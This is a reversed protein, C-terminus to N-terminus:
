TDNRGSRRVSARPIASTGTSLERGPRNSSSMVSIESIVTSYPGPVCVQDGEDFRVHPNGADPKGLLNVQYSDPLRAADTM